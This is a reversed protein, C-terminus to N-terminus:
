SHTHIGWEFSDLDDYSLLEGQGNEEMYLNANKETSFALVGYNMPTWYNANYVYVADKVNIWTHSQEDKIFAAGINDEGNEMIYEMLCGLDDFVLHDNNKFVIQGAYDIHSISMNCIECVDTEASIEKPEYEKSSCGVLAIVILALSVYWKWNM